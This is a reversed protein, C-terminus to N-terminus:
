KKSTVLELVRLMQETNLYVIFANRLRESDTEGLLKKTQLESYQADSLTVMIKHTMKIKCAQM